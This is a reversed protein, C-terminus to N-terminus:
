NKKFVPHLQFYQMRTYPIQIKGTNLSYNPIKERLEKFSIKQEYVFNFASLIFNKGRSQIKKLIENFNYSIIKGDVPDKFEYNEFDFNYKHNQNLYFLATISSLKQNLIPISNIIKALTEKLFLSLLKKHNYYCHYTFNIFNELNNNRIFSNYISLAYDKLIVEEEKKLFLKELLPFNKIPTNYHEKLIYFDLCTEYLRHNRQYEKQKKPDSDYYNGTIHYIYPHFFTDAAVHTLFGSVISFIKDKKQSNKQANQLLDYIPALNNKSDHIKNGIDLEEFYRFKKSPIIYYYMDPLSSGYYYININEELIKQIANPLKEKIKEAFFLHSIEKPM